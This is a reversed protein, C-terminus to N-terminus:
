DQENEETMKNIPKVCLAVIGVGIFNAYSIGGDKESTALFIGLCFAATLLIRKM